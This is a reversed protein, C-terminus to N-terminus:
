YYRWWLRRGQQNNTADEAPREAEVRLENRQERVDLAAKLLALRANSRDWNVRLLPAAAALAATPKTMVLAIVPVKM